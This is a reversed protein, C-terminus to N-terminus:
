KRALGIEMTKFEKGGMQTFMEMKQHNDDIWQLTQRVEIEKGSMPDMMKGSFNITKTGADWTGKQVLMGSGMNDIWSSVFEKKANDYALWGTGEFPMGMVMANSYKSEQYRGGMLMRNTCTGTSQVVPAGPAMWLSIAANWEGDAKALMQHVPGPTMYEMWKKQAEQQDGQANLQCFPAMLLVIAYVTTRKM